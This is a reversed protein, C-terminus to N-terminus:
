YELSGYIKGDKYNYAICGLHGALGKVSGIVNGDLDSKVLCTTFSYYMFKREKDVAIGQVHGANWGSVTINDKHM